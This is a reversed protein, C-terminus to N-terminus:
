PYIRYVTSAKEVNNGNVKVWRTHATYTNNEFPPISSKRTIYNYYGSGGAGPQRCDPPIASFNGNNINSENITFRLTPSGDSKMCFASTTGSILPDITAGGEVHAKLLEVQSDTHKYAEAREQAQRNGMSSRNATAISMTLILSLVAVAILVELITDGKQTLKLPVISM